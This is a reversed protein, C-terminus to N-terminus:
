KMKLELLIRHVHFQRKLAIKKSYNSATTESDNLWCNNRNLFWGCKSDSYEKYTIDLHGTAVIM